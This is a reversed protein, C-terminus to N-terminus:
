TALRNQQRVLYRSNLGIDFFHKRKVWVLGESKTIIAVDVPGGVTESSKTVKEKLAQLNILTEALEAMEDVPLVGLVRRLPLAHERQARELIDDGMQHRARAVVEDFNPIAAVDGGSDAIMKRAFNGLRDSLTSMVSLYVDQSVGLSFTDSMATQAFSALRAPVDHTIAFESTPIAIHKSCVVGCSKFETLAPFVEHDGFGAFVLGTASLHKEPQKFIEMIGLIALDNVDDPFGKGFTERFQEIHEVLPATWKALATNFLEDTLGPCFALANLEAIRATIVQLNGLLRETDDDPYQQRHVFMVAASRAADLFVEDQISTPFLLNSQESFAFFEAAYERVTNFSKKGLSSRFTKVVIEWPVRMIDAADFIMLGVPHHDSLQFIKNSGKFYRSEVNEGTWQTVTAASDAALVVALRNMICVEATM